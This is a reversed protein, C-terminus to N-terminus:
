PRRSTLLERLQTVIQAADFSENPVGPCRSSAYCCGQVPMWSCPACVAASIGRFLESDPPGWVARRTTAFLGVAPVRAAVACHMAITDNCVAARLELLAGLLSGVTPPASLEVRRDPVLRRLAAMDAREGAGAGGIVSVREGCDLLGRIVKAVVPLAVRKDPRSAGLFLGVAGSGPGPPEALTEVIARAVDGDIAVGHREFLWTWQEVIYRHRTEDPRDFLDWVEVGRERLGARLPAYGANFPLGFDENRFSVFLGIAEREVFELIADGDAPEARYWHRPVSRIRFRASLPGPALFPNEVHWVTGSCVRAALADLFPLALVGNGYGVENLVLVNGYM